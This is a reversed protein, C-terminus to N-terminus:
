IINNILNIKQVKINFSTSQKIELNNTKLFIKKFLSPHRLNISMDFPVCNIFNIKLRFDIFNFKGDLSIFRINPKYTNTISTFEGRSRKITYNNFFSEGSKYVILVYKCNHIEYKLSFPQGHILYSVQNNNLLFNAEM